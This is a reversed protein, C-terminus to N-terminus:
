QDRGRLRCLDDRDVIEIEQAVRFMDVSFHPAVIGDQSARVRGTGVRDDDRRVVSGAFHYRSSPSDGSRTCIQEGPVGEHAGSTIARRSGSLGPSRRSKM